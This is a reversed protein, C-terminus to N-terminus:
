APLAEKRFFRVADIYSVRDWSKRSERLFEKFLNLDEKTDVTLRLDHLDEGDNLLNIYQYRSTNEYLISTVHERQSPYTMDAYSTEFTTTKILEVSVGYPYSRPYLNTVFDCRTERARSSAEELLKPEVFPSDGNIRYFYDFRNEIACDLIRQAVDDTSGRFCPLHRDLCFQAIPDDLPRCSTAVVLHEAISSVRICRSVVYDLLPKNNVQTLVKGPLRSSDMRGLIIAGFIMPKWKM